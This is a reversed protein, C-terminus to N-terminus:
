DCSACCDLLVVWFCEFVSRPVVLVQAYTGPIRVCAFVPIVVVLAWRRGASGGSKRLAASSFCCEPIASPGPAYLQQM